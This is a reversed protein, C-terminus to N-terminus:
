LFRYPELNDEIWRLCITLQEKNAADRCEDVLISFWKANRINDGVERLIKHSMLKIIENQSDHCTYKDKKKKSWTLLDPHILQNYNSEEEFGPEPRPSENARFKEISNTETQIFISLFILHVNQIM